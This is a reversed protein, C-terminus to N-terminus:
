SKTSFVIRTSKSMYYAVEQTLKPDKLGLCFLRKLEYDSNMIGNSMTNLAQRFQKVSENNRQKRSFIDEFRSRNELTPIQSNILAAKLKIFGEKDSYQSLDGINEILKHPLLLITYEVWQNSPVNSKLFLELMGFWTQIKMIDTYKEPQTTYVKYDNAGRPQTGFQMSNHIHVANAATQNTPPVMDNPTRM